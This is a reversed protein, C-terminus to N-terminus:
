TRQGGSLPIPRDAYYQRAKQEARRRQWVLLPGYLLVGVADYSILTALISSSQGLVLEFSGLTLGWVLGLCIAAAVPHSVVKSRAWVRWLRGRLTAEGDAVYFIDTEKEHLEPVGARDRHSGSVKIAAPTDPNAILPAGRALAADVKEHNAYLGPAVFDASAPSQAEAGLAFSMLVLAGFRASKTM